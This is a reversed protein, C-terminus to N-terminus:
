DEPQEEGRGEIRDFLKEVREKEEATHKSVFGELLFIATAVALEAGTTLSWLLAESPPSGSWALAIVEAAWYKFIVFTVFGGLWSMLAGRWTTRRVLMGLLLPISVPGLVAAYWDMMAKFAGGLSGTALGCAVAIAGFAATAAFGVKMLKSDSAKRDLTRSYIDKTFVAALANLDSDVMSMTAAFMGAVLLGLLGPAILPLQQQAVAIYATEPDALQGVLAPAAWVPIFLAFPYVLYLAASLLAANRADRAKGISYFRQALGWTGGNYSLVVVPFYVLLRYLPWQRSFLQLPVANPGTWLKGWGGVASLVAPVLVLTIGFQVIFQAFDTMLEAWLGGVVLYVVTVVGCGIVTGQLPLGTCANIVKALSHLKTGEDVFKVAIGSWAILQRVPNNFREELYEVPTMVKLRVWRPAWVHAGMVMALFCPVAFVTWVNFGVTYALSAYGVFAFASYGSVHHSVAALWWPVRHGGAFYDDLGRIMRRAYFGIAAVGVLYAVVVAYDVSTLM